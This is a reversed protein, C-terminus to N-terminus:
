ITLCKVQLTLDRGDKRVEKSRTRREENMQLTHKWDIIYQRRHHVLRHAKGRMSRQQGWATRASPLCKSGTSQDGWSRKTSGGGM